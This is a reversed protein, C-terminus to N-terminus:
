EEIRKVKRGGRSKIEKSIKRADAYETLIKIKIESKEKDIYLEEIGEVKFIMKWISDSIVTDNLGQVSYKLVTFKEANPSVTGEENASNKCALQISIVFLLLLIKKM